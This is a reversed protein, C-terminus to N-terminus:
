RKSALQEAVKKGEPCITETAFPCFRCAQEVEAREVDQREAVPVFVTRATEFDASATLRKSLEEIEAISKFVKDLLADVQSHTPEIWDLSNPPDFRWYLFGLRDPLSGEHHRHQAAYWLLQKEDVYKDRWKSGKGDIIIRDHHPKTRTMRFDARGGLRHGQIDADLKVEARADRGLLRETRITQFGRAVADRVDAALEEVDAYMGKPNQGEEEGRWRIVGAQRWKSTTTTEERIVRQITKEVRAMVAGQPQDQRWLEENYFDEFLCGVVSGFISGLRDDLGEIKTHNIYSNWYAFACGTFKSWGSYSLYM